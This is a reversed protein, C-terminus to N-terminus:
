VWVDCILSPSDPPLLIVSHLSWQPQSTVTRLGGSVSPETPGRSLSAGLLKKGWGQPEPPIGSELVLAPSSHSLEYLGM